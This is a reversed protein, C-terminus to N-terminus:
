LAVVMQIEVIANRPLATVGVAARAHQGAEGFIEVLLDSAGNIVQPSECFGAVTNVYGNLSVIREVADLSGLAARMASMQTLACRRAAYRGEEVSRNQGVTGTLVGNEDTSIVGALFLLSGARRAPVYNGGPSPPAPLVVGLEALRREAGM